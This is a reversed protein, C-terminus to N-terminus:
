RHDVAGLPPEFGAIPSIVNTDGSTVQPQTILLYCLQSHPRGCCLAGRASHCRADREHHERVDRSSSRASTRCSCLRCDRSRVRRPIPVVSALEYRRSLASRCHIQARFPVSRSGIGFMAWMYLDAGGRKSSSSRIRRSEFRDRGRAVRADCLISSVTTHHRSMRVVDTVPASRGPSRPSTASIRVM